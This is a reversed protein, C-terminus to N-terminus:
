DTTIVKERGWLMTYLCILSFCLSLCQLPDASTIHCVFWSIELCFHKHLCLQFSWIILLTGCDLLLFLPPHSMKPVKVLKASLSLHTESTEAHKPLTQSAMTEIPINSIIWICHFRVRSSFYWVRTYKLNTYVSPLFPHLSHKLAYIYLVSLRVWTNLM